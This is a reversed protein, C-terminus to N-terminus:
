KNNMKRAKGELMVTGIDCHTGVPYLLDSNHVDQFTSYFILIHKIRQNQSRTIIVSKM